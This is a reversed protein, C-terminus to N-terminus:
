AVRRLARTLHRPAHRALLGADVSRAVAPDVDIEAVVPVSLLSEVDGRDLARGPERVLV